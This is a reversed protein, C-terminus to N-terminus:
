STHKITNHESFPRNSFEKNSSNQNAHNRSQGIENIKHGPNDLARHQKAGNSRDLNKGRAISWTASRMLFEGTLDDGRSGIGASRNIVHRGVRSGQRVAMMLLESTVPVTEVLRLAAWRVGINFFCLRSGSM